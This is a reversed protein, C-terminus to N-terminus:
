IDSSLPQHPHVTLLGRMFPHLGCHYPYHGPALHSLVFQKHPPIVGSDFSCGSRSQCDDAVISHAERTRNEWTLPMNLSITLQNPSFFPPEPQIHIHPSSGWLIPPTPFSFLLIGVFCFITNVRLLTRCSHLFKM